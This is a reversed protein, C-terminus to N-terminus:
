KQRCLQELQESNVVTGIPLNSEGALEDSIRMTWEPAPPKTPVYPVERKQFLGYSVGAERKREYENRDSHFEDSSKKSNFYARIEAESYQGHSALESPTHSRAPPKYPTNPAPTKILSPGLINMKEAEAHLEEYKAPNEKRLRQAVTGNGKFFETLEERTYRANRKAEIPDFM